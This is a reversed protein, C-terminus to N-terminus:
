ERDAGGGVPAGPHRAPQKRQYPFPCGALIADRATLPKDGAALMLDLILNKPNVKMLETPRRCPQVVSM